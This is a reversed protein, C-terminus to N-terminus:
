EEEKMRKANSVAQDVFKSLEWFRAPLLERKAGDREAGRPVLFVMVPWSLSKALFAAHTCERPAANAMREGSQFDVRGTEDRSPMVSAVLSRGRSTMWSLPEGVGGGGMAPLVAQVMVEWSFDSVDRFVLEIRPVPLDEDRDNSSKWGDETWQLQNRLKKIEKELSRITADRAEIQGELVELAKTGMGLREKLRDNEDSLERITQLASSTLSFVM